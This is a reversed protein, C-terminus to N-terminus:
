VSNAIAAIAALIFIKMMTRTLRRHRQVSHVQISHWFKMRQIHEILIKVGM